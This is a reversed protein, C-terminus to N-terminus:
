KLNASIRLADMMRIAIASRLSKLTITHMILQTGSPKSEDPKSIRDALSGGQTTESPNESSMARYDLSCFEATRTNYLLLPLQPSTVSPYLFISHRFTSFAVPM